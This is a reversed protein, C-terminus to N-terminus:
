YLTISNDIENAFATIGGKLNFLNTLSHKKELEEIAMASRGGSKCHIIVPKDRSIRDAKDIIKGLPILEGNLNCIDYEYSERVDILQFDEHDDLKQKLDQVSIEKMNISNQNTNCFQEYDILESIDCNEEVRDFNLTNVEATLSDYVLLKGNLVDGIGIFIKIVENAQMSGIIGPLVGMVGIEACNPVSGPSPPEPFLCRYTPGKKGSKNKFNFVSVQGEFKFISGFVFPKDSIVCADNILYRTPFNDTGDAILDYDQFIKLANSSDLREQYINIQIFPNLQSLKKKAIEVKPKGIDDKGYLVQRHLNTADVVDADIIGITGIGAAALYSLIPCGLGGAGVVLVKANILKEQGKKGIEPLIIHRQYQSVEEKTLGKM